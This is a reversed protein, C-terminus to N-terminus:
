PTITLTTPTTVSIHVEEGSRLILNKYYFNGDEDMAKGHVGAPGIITIDTGTQMEVVMEKLIPTRFTVKNYTNIICSSCPPKTNKTIQNMQSLVVIVILLAVLFLIFKKM